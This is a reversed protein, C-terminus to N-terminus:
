SGIKMMMKREDNLSAHSVFIMWSSAAMHSKWKKMVFGVMAGKFEFLNRQLRFLGTLM